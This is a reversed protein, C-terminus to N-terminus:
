GAAVDLLKVGRMGTAARDFTLLPSRAASVACALHLCEAFDVRNQRYAQLAREVAGEDQFDLERSELLAGFTATMREKPFQYRSRLVCELELVVSLPVYLSEGSRVARQVCSRAAQLQAPDDAALLRVLVNTDVSAM